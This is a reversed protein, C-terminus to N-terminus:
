RLTRVPYRVRPSRAYGASSRSSGAIPRRLDRRRRRLARATQPPCRRRSRCATAVRGRLCSRRRARPLPAMCACGPRNRATSVTWQLGARSPIATSRRGGPSACQISPSPRLVDPRSWRCGRRRRRGATGADRFRLRAFRIRARRFLRRGSTAACRCASSRRCCSPSTPRCCGARGRDPGRGDAPLAATRAATPANGAAAPTTPYTSRAPPSSTPDATHSTAPNPRHQLSALSKLLYRLSVRLRDSYGEPAPPFRVDRRRLACSRHHPRVYLASTRTAPHLSPWRSTAVFAPLRTRVRRMSRRRHACGTAPRRVSHM